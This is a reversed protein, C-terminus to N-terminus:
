NVKMLDVCQKLIRVKRISRLVGVLLGLVLGMLLGVAVTALGILHNMVVEIETFNAERREHIQRVM